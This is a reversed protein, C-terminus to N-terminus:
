PLRTSTMDTVKGSEDVVKGDQWFYRAPGSRPNSSWVKVKAGSRLEPDQAPNTLPDDFSGLKDHDPNLVIKTRKFHSREKSFFERNAFIYRSDQDAEMPVWVGDIREFRVHDVRATVRDGRPIVKDHYRQGGTAEWTAKAPQCGHGSDLWVVYEGYETRADIVYCACGNITEMTPRLSIRDARHLVADLREDAGLFGLM